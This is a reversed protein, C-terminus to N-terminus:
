KDNNRKVYPAYYKWTNRSSKPQIPAPEPATETEPEAATEAAAKRIERIMRFYTQEPIQLATYIDKHSYEKELARLILRAAAHRRPHLKEIIADKREDSFIMELPNENGAAKQALKPREADISGNKGGNYIEANIVRAAAKCMERITEGDVAGAGSELYALAAAQAADKLYKQLEARAIGSKDEIIKLASWACKKSQLELEPGSLPRPSKRMSDPKEFTMGYIKRNIASKKM